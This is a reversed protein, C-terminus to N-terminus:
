NKSLSPSNTTFEHRIGLGVPFRPIKAASLGQYKVTLLWGVYKPWEEFQARRDSITAAPRCDFTLGEKQSCIWVVAGKETGEGPKAGIIMFESTDFQKYKRMKLSRRQPTYQLTKSRLVAGEFGTAVFQDHYETAEEPSYIIHTPVRKVKELEKEDFITDLTEFRETQQIAGGRDICDFVYFFLQDEYPCPEKRHINAAGGSAAFREAGDRLLRGGKRITPSYIEGDLGLYSPPLRSLLTATDRCIQQFWPFRKGTRSTLIATGDFGRTAVCRVGDLKPQIYAGQTLELHKHLCHDTKKYHSAYMPFVLSSTAPKGPADLLRPASEKFEASDGSDGVSYGSKIKKLWARQAYLSAQKEPSQELATAKITRGVPERLKGDLRGYTRYVVDNQAWIKWVLINDHPDRTYLPDWVTVKPDNVLCEEM